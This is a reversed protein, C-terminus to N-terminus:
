SQAAMAAVVGAAGSRKAEHLCALGDVGGGAADVGDAVELCCAATDQGQVNAVLLRHLGGDRLDLAVLTGDSQLSAEWTHGVRSRRFDFKASLAVLARQTSAPAAGRETLASFLTQGPEIAGTPQLDTVAPTSVALLGDGRAGNLALRIKPAVLALMPSGSTVPAEEVEGGRHAWLRGVGLGLAIAVSIM